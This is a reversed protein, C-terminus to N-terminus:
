FPLLFCHSIEFGVSRMVLELTTALCVTNQLFIGADEPDSFLSLMYPILYYSSLQEVQQTYQLTQCIQPSHGNRAFSVYLLVLKEIELIRHVM